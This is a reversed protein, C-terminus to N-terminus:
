VPQGRVSALAEVLASRTERRSILRGRPVSAAEKLLGVQADPWYLVVHGAASAPMLAAAAAGIAKRVVLSIASVDSEAWTSVLNALGSLAADDPVIGPCDVLTIIPMGLRGCFGVLKSAQALTAADLVGSTAATSALVGVTEGGVTALCARLSGFSDFEVVTRDDAIRQLLRREDVHLSTDSGALREFAFDETCDPAGGNFQSRPGVPLLNAIRRVGLLAAADTAFSCSLEGPPTSAENRPFIRKTTAADALALSGAPGVCVIDALRALMGAPGVLPGLVVSIIPTQRRRRALEALFRNLALYQDPEDSVEFPTFVIILPSGGDRRVFQALDNLAQAPMPSGRGGLTLALMERGGITGTACTHWESEGLCDWGSADFLFDLYDRSSIVSEGSTEASRV